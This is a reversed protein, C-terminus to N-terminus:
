FVCTGCCKFFIQSDSVGAQTQFIHVPSVVSVEHTIEALLNVGSPCHSHPLSATAVHKFAPPISQQLLPHTRKTGRQPSAKTCAVLLWTSRPGGQPNGWDKLVGLHSGSWCAFLCSSSYPLRHLLWLAPTSSTSTSARRTM